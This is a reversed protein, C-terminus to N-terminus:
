GTSSHLRSKEHSYGTEIFILGLAAVLRECDLQALIGEDLFHLSNALTHFLGPERPTKVINVVSDVLRRPVAPATGQKAIDVWRNEATEPLEQAMPSPIGVEVPLPVSLMDDILAAKVSPRIASLSRELRHELPEHLKRIFFRLM